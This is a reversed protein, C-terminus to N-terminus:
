MCLFARACAGHHCMCARHVRVHISEALCVCLHQERKGHVRVPICARMSWSSVHISEALPVCMSSSESVDAGHVRVHISDERKCRSRTCACSHKRGPVRLISSESVTYVCLFAGHHCMCAGHVRVHISEALCVCMSSKSVYVPSRCAANM